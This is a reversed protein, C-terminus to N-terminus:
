VGSDEDNAAGSRCLTVAIRDMAARVEALYEEGVQPYGQHNGSEQGAKGQELSGQKPQSVGGKGDYKASNEHVAASSDALAATKLSANLQDVLIDFPLKFYDAIQATVEPPIKEPTVDNNEIRIFEVPPIGVSRSVVEPMLRTAAIVERLYAGFSLQNPLLSQNAKEIAALRPQELVNVSADPIKEILNHVLLNMSPTIAVEGREWRGYTNRGIHLLDCIESLNLNLVRRLTKLQIPTLLPKYGFELAVRKKDIVLSQAHSFTLDGCAPCLECDLDRLVHGRGNISLSLETKSTQYESEFCNTCIMSGKGTKQQLLDAEM